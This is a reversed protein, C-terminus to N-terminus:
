PSGSSLVLISSVIKSVHSLERQVFSGLRCALSDSTPFAQSVSGKLSEPQHQAKIQM